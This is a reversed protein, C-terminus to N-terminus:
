VTYLLLLAMYSPRLRNYSSGNPRTLRLFRFRASVVGLCILEPSELRCFTNCFASIATTYGCWLVIRAEKHPVPHKGNNVCYKGGFLSPGSTSKPCLTAHARALSVTRTVNNQPTSGDSKMLDCFRHSLRSLSTGCSAKMSLRGEYRVQERRRRDSREVCPITWSIATSACPQKALAGSHRCNLLSLRM